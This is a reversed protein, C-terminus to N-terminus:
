SKIEELDCLIYVDSLMTTEVFYRASFMKGINSEIKLNFDEILEKKSKAFAIKQGNKKIFCFMGNIFGEYVLEEQKM